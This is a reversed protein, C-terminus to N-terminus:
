ASALTAAAGARRAARSRTRETSRCSTGAAARALHALEPVADVHAGEGAVLRRAVIAQVRQREAPVRRRLAVLRQDAGGTACPDPQRTCPGASVSSSRRCRSSSRPRAPPSASSSSATGRVSIGARSPERPRGASCCGSRCRPCPRRRLRARGTDGGERGGRRERREQGLREAERPLVVLAKRLREGGEGRAAPLLPQLQSADGGRPRARGNRRTAPGFAHERRCSSSGGRESPRRCRLSRPADGRAAGAGVRARSPRGSAQGGRPRAPRPRRRRSM